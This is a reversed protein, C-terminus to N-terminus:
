VAAGGAGYKTVGNVAWVAGGSSDYKVLFVSEVIPSTISHIGFTMTGSFWETFYVSRARDVAVNHDGGAPDGSANAGPVAEHAWVWTQSYSQTGTFILFLPTFLFISRKKFKLLVSYCSYINKM